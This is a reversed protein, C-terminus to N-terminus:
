CSLLSFTENWQIANRMTLSCLHTCVCARVHYQNQDKEGFCAQHDEIKLGEHKLFSSEGHHQYLWIQNKISQKELKPKIPLQLM